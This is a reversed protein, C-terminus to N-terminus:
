KTKCRDRCASLECLYYSHLFGFCRLLGSEAYCDLRCRCGTKTVCAKRCPLCKPDHELSSWVTCNANMYCHRCSDNTPDWTDVDDCTNPRYLRESSVPARHDGFEGGNYLVSSIKRGERVSFPIRCRTRGGKQLFAEAECSGSLLPLTLLSTITCAGDTDCITFLAPGVPLPKPISVNEIEVDAVLFVNGENAVIHAIKGILQTDHITLRVTEKPESKSAGCGLLLTTVALIAFACKKGM